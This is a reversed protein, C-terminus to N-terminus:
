LSRRRRRWRRRRGRKMKKNMRDRNSCAFGVCPGGFAEVLLALVVTAKEKRKAEKEKV